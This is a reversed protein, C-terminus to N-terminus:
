MSIKYIVRTVILIIPYPSLAGLDVSSLSYIIKTDIIAHQINPCTTEDIRAM